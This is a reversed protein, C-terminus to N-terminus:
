EKEKKRGHRGRIALLRICLTCYARARACVNMALVQGGDLEVKVREGKQSKIEASKFGEEEDPVWTWKKSDFMRTQDITDKTRSPRLYASPDDGSM